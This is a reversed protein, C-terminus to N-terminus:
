SPELTEAIGRGERNLAAAADFLDPWIKLLRGYKGAHGRVQEATLGCGRGGFLLSPERLMELVKDLHDNVDKAWAAPTRGHAQLLRELNGAYAAAGKAWAEHLLHVFDGKGLFASAELEGGLEAFREKPKATRSSPRCRLALSMLLESLHPKFDTMSEPNFSRREPPDHLFGFGLFATLSSPRLLRLLFIFFGDPNRGLPLFPPITERCDYGAQMAMFHLSPGVLDTEAIRLVERSLRAESYGAELLTQRSRGELALATRARGFGSDGYTGPSTVTVTGADGPLAVPLIDAARAGLFRRHEAIVDIDRAEVQAVVSERSAAYLFDLPFGDETYEPGCPKRGRRPVASECFVDDDTSIALGGAAALLVANFNAGAGAGDPHPLFAYGVTEPDFDRGLRRIFDRRSEKDSALLPLAYDQGLRRFGSFVEPALDKLEGTLALLLPHRRGHNALNRAFGEVSKLLCDRKGTTPWALLISTDATGEDM